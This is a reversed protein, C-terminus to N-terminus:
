LGLKEPVYHKAHYSAVSPFVSFLISPPAFADNNVIYWYKDTVVVMIRKNISIGNDSNVLEKCSSLPGRSYAM